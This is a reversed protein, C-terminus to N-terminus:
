GTVTGIPVRTGNPCLRSRSSDHALWRLQGPRIEGGAHRHIRDLLALDEEAVGFALGDEEAPLPLEEGGHGGGTRVVAARQSFPFDDALGNLTIAIRASTDLINVTDGAGRTNVVFPSAPNVVNTTVSDVTERVVPVGASFFESITFTSLVTREELNELQLRCKRSPGRARTFARRSRDEQRRSRNWMIM